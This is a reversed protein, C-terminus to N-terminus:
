RHFSLSLSFPWPCMAPFLGLVEIGSARKQRWLRVVGWSACVQCTHLHGGSAAAIKHLPGPCPPKPTDINLIEWLSGDGPCSTGGQTVGFFPITGWAPHAWLGSICAESGDEKMPWGGRERPVSTKGTVRCVWGAREQCCWPQGWGLGGGVAALFLLLACLPWSSVRASGARLSRVNALLFPAM